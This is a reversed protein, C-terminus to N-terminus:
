NLLLSETKNENKNGKKKRKEKGHRDNGDKNSTNNKV